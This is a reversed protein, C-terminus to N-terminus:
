DQELENRTQDIFINEDVFEGLSNYFENGKQFIPTGEIDLGLFVEKEEDSIFQEIEEAILGTPKSYDDKIIINGEFKVGLVKDGCKSYTAFRKSVNNLDEEYTNNNKCYDIYIKGMTQALAQNRLEVNKVDIKCEGRKARPMLTLQLKEVKGKNIKYENRPITIIIDILDNEYIRRNLNLTFNNYRSEKISANTKDYVKQLFKCLFDYEILLDESSCAFFWDVIGNTNKNNKNLVQCVEGLNTGYKMLFTDRLISKYYRCKDLNNIGFVKILFHSVEENKERIMSRLVDWCQRETLELM